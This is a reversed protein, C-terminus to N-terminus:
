QIRDSTSLLLSASLCAPSAVWGEALISRPEMDIATSSLSGVTVNALPETVKESSLSVKGQFGQQLVQSMDVKGIALTKYGRIPRHYRKKRQLRLQLM